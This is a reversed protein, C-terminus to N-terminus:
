SMQQRQVDGGGVLLIAGLHLFEGLLYLPDGSIM